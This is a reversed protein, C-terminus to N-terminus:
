RISREKKAERGVDSYWLPHTKFGSLRRKMMTARPREVDITIV